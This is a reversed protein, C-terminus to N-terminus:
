EERRVTIGMHKDYKFHYQKEHIKIVAQSNQDFMVLYKGKIWPSDKIVDPICAQEKRLADLTFGIIGPNSLQYPLKLTEASLEKFCEQKSFDMHHGSSLFYYGEDKKQIAVIEVTGGSDRVRAEGNEGDNLKALDSTMFDPMCYRFRHREPAPKNIMFHEPKVRKIDESERWKILERDYNENDYVAEILSPMDDPIVIKKKLIERTRHLLYEGYILESPNKHGEALELVTCQAQEFGPARKRVHRHLRGIRQLILDIPALDTILWDFDIDLSQELVQTGVVIYKDPRRVHPDGPKGLKSRIRKECELRDKVLYGSHLLDMEIEPFVERVIEYIKQARAVTNVIIGICCKESLRDGILDTLMEEQEYNIWVIRSESKTKVVQKQIIGDESYTIEPLTHNNSRFSMDTVNTNNYAQILESKKSVPLTASLLVVPVHYAGLWALARKLYENMFADYAHVEDVVVVKNTLGLHRLMVHKQQLGAMLLQDITGVVFDALMAQKRGSFWEEVQVSGEQSDAEIGTATLRNYEENYAAKGHMLQISSPMHYSAMFRELRGFMGDSTAQSPLAFFIGSRGFKRALIDSAALAAETKGKGMEAEIVIIGPKNMGSATEVVEQQLENPAFGFRWKFDFKVAETYRDTFRWGKNLFALKERCKDLREEPSDCTICDEPILPFYAENSAIWDAMILLGCMWVQVEISPVPLDKLEQIDAYDLAFHIFEQQLSKWIKEGKEDAYYSALLANRSKAGKDTPVGHHAGIVSALNRVERPGEEQLIIYGAEAHKVPMIINSNIPIGNKELRQLIQRNTASGDIVIKSQFAPTAKGLDHVAGLFRLVKLVAEQPLEEKFGKCINEKVPERIWERWLLEMVEATDGLHIYLPLWKNPHSSDETKDRKKKAWLCKAMESLKYM